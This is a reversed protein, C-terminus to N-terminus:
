FMPPHVVTLTAHARCRPTTYDLTALDADIRGAVSLVFPPKGPPQTNFSGSFGGDAAIKGPITLVGDGPTFTFSDGQRALTAAALGCGPLAGTYRLPHPTAQGGCGALAAMALGMTAWAMARRGRM